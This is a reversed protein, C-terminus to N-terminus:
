LKFKKNIISEFIHLSMPVYTKENEDLFYLPDKIVAPDFGEEVLKVKRQKFTGTIEIAEQIRVFRPRAYNPLYEMVHKYINPGDFKKGEKLKIAAMGVRGEHEPVTVGYVSAEQIFDVNELLDAVECTAVNEGKWRFTDGIRDKFYIFNDHDIMLLDGSNFFIDGKRFVDRLIKKESQTKSGAYGCFPSRTTIKAVLLGTEGKSVHICHGNADRVPEEKETNFKILEYPVGRKHLFNARGVAGIKGSYNIFAINGETAAYFECIRIKGFRNLFEKWVDARLGNGVAIRVKHDRDNDKRPTSCLYRLMEGIYQIATTNYERCDNWFQSASFKRRLVCTTGLEICGNVGLLLGASHYLPLPTYVVDESTVGSISLLFSAGWLRRQNIIAAKPLGTTGSTYIYLAATKTTTTIRFSKPIPQDSSAEIKEKLSEVGQTIPEDNLYFITVNNERLNPLVEEVAGKLDAGAILVKAGSCNFSHLFARSRINCNLCAMSCGLKALGLWIWIYAPENGLFLAATDGEKLAAERQLARAVQNSRKDVELYTYVQKEFVLFPKHPQKEVQQLFKDLLTFVPEKEEFKKMKYNFPITRVIFSLDQWLYPFYSSLLLPLLMLGALATFLSYM